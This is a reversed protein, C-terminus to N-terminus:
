LKDLRSTLERLGSVSLDPQQALPYPMKGQRRVFATKLGCAAAGALDWGHAAIMMTDEAETQCQQLAWQYVEPYPKYTRISQVSLVSEFLQIIKAYELQHQLGSASSNSLAVLKYGRNKLESLGEIVDDHPPLSTMPATIIERAKELSVTKGLGHAVMVLAAAGIESFDNFEGRAMDVLSHHLLTSFWLPVLSDDGDLADAIASKVAQMDLLTENIDFILTSPSLRM